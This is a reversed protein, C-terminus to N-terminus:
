CLDKSISSPGSVVLGYSFIDSAKTIGSGTQGEPSRWMFNGLAVGTRLLTVGLVQKYAIGFDGLTADTVTKNGEKNCTWNVFINDPKM